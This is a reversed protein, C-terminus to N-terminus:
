CDLHRLRRFWDATPVAVLSDRRYSLKFSSEILRPQSLPKSAEATKGGAHFRSIGVSTNLSKRSVASTESSASTKPKPLVQAAFAEPDKKYKARLKDLQESADISLKEDVTALPLNFIDVINQCGLAALERRFRAEGICLKTVPTQILQQYKEGEM